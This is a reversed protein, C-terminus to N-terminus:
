TLNDFTIKEENLDYNFDLEIKGINKRLEKKIADNWLQNGNETDFAYAQEVSGPIKIGYKMLKRNLKSAKM